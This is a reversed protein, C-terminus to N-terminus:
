RSWPSWPGINLLACRHCGVGQSLLLVVVGPAIASASSEVASLPSVVDACLQCRGKPAVDVASLSVTLGFPLPTVYRWSRM